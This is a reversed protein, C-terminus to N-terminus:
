QIVGNDRLAGIDPDRYGLERLVDETHQGLAPVPRWAEVRTESLRIPSTVTGFKAEGTLGEGVGGRAAVQPQALAEDLDLVPEVCADAARLAEVWEDRDRSAFLARLAETTEHRKDGREWQRGARDPL